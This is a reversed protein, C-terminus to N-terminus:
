AKAQHTSKTQKTARQEGHSHKAKKKRRKPLAPPLYNFCATICPCKLAKGDAVNRCIRAPLTSLDGPQYTRAERIKRFKDRLVNKTRNTLKVVHERLISSDKNVYLIIVGKPRLATVESEREGLEKMTGDRSRRVFLYCAAQDIHDQIAQKAISDYYWANISKIEVIWRSLGNGTDIIVEGDDHGLIQTKTHDVPVEKFVVPGNCGRKWCKPPAVTWKQAGCLICEWNGYLLGMDHLWHHVMLHIFDGTDFIRLTRSEYRPKIESKLKQMVDDLAAQNMGAFEEIQEELIEQIVHNNIVWKRPCFEGRMDSPHFRKDTRPPRPRMDMAVFDFRRKKDRTLLYENIRPILIGNGRRKKGKVAPRDLLEKLM